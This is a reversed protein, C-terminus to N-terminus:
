QLSALNQEKRWAMFLSNGGQATVGRMLKATGPSSGSPKAAPLKPISASSTKHPLLMLLKLLNQDSCQQTLESSCSCLRCTHGAM